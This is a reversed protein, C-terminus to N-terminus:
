EQNVNEMEKIMYEMEKVWEYNIVVRDSYERSLANMHFKQVYPYHKSIYKLEKDTIKVQM